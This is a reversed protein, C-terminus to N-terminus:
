ERVGELEEEHAIKYMEDFTLYESYGVSLRMSAYSRNAYNRHKGIIKVRGYERKSAPLTTEYNLADIAKKFFIFPYKNNHNPIIGKITYGSLGTNNKFMKM